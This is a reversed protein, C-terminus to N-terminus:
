LYEVHELNLRFSNFPSIKTHNDEPARIALLLGRCTMGILEAIEPKTFSCVNTVRMVSLGHVYVVLNHCLWAAEEPTINFTQPLVVNVIENYKEDPIFKIQTSEEHTTMFLLRFLEPEEDAFALHQMALGKFPPKMALGENVYVMYRDWAADAAAKRVEDLTDFHTFVTAPATGLYKGLSRATVASFGYQRTLQIAADILQEKTYKPKRPM